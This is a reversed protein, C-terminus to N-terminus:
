LEISPAGPRSPLAIDAADPHNRSRERLADSEFELFVAPMPPVVRREVSPDPDSSIAEDTLRGRPDIRASWSHMYGLWNGPNPLARSHVYHGHLRLHEDEEVWMRQPYATDAGGTSPLTLTWQVDGASGVRLFRPTPAVGASRYSSVHVRTQIAAFFRRRM